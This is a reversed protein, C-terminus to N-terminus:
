QREEPQPRKESRGDIWSGWFNTAKADAQRHGEIDQHASRQRTCRHIRRNGEAWGQSAAEPLVIENVPDPRDDTGDDGGQNVLIHDQAAPPAGLLLGLLDSRHADPWIRLFRCSLIEM